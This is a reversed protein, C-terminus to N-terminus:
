GARLLRLRRRIRHLLDPVEKVKLKAVNAMADREKLAQKQKATLQKSRRKENLKELYDRECTVKSADDDSSSESEESADDDEDILFNVFSKRVGDKEDSTKPNLGADQLVAM